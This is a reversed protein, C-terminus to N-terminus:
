PVHTKACTSAGTGKFGQGGPQLPYIQIQRTRIDPLPTTQPRLTFVPESLYKGGMQYPATM